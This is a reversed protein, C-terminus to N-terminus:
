LDNLDLKNLMNNFEVVNTSTQVKCDLKDWLKNGLNYPSRLVREKNTFAIKMKVKPGTRLLMEPRYREINNEDRSLKYMMKLMFLKRRNDLWKLNLDEHMKRMEVTSIHGTVRKVIRVARNQLPQLKSIRRQTSSNVLVSVYDLIPLITQKYILLCTRADLMTRIRALTILRGNVKGITASVFKEFTLNKDITVGLYVFNDVNVIGELCEENGLDCVTRSAGCLMHRTKQKNVRINNLRCWEQVQTFALGVDHTAVKKSVDSGVIVTDDAYMNCFVNPSVRVIDNIYIIFLLPGLPSGQYVGHELQAGSSLVTGIRTYQFRDKFYSVFWKCVCESFGYM